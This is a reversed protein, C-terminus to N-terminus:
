TQSECKLRFRICLKISARGNPAFLFNGRRSSPAEVFFLRIFASKPFCPSLFRFQFKRIFDLFDKLLRAFCIKERSGEFYLSTSLRFFAFALLKFPIALM